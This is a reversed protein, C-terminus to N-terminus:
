MHRPWLLIEGKLISLNNYNKDILKFTIQHSATYFYKYFDFYLINSTNIKLKLVKFIIMPLLKDNTKVIIKYLGTCPIKFDVIENSFIYKNLILNDKTDYVKVYFNFTNISNFVRCKIKNNNM